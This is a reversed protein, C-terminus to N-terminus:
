RRAHIWGLLAGYVGFQILHFLSSLTFFTALSTVNSKAAFALVSVSWLFVGMVLGFRVGSLLPPGGRNFLPYLYALIMGQLLMSGVGFAFIPPERTYAGLGDYAEKFFVFHWTFGLAFSVLVYAATALLFKRTNM